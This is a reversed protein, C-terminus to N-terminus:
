FDFRFTSLINMFVEKNKEFDIPASVLSIWSYDISDFGEVELPSPYKYYVLMEVSNKNKLIGVKIVQGDIIRNEKLVKIEGKGYGEIFVKDWPTMLVGPTYPEYLYAGKQVNSSNVMQLDGSKVLKAGEFQPSIIQWTPPYKFSIKWFSDKYTKWTSTDETSKFPMTIPTPSVTQKEITNQKDKNGVFVMGGLVVVIIGAVIAIM